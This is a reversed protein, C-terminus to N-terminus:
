RNFMARAAWYSGVASGFIAGRIAALFVNNHSWGQNFGLQTIGAIIAVLVAFTLIGIGLKKLFRLIKSGCTETAMSLGLHEYLRKDNTM